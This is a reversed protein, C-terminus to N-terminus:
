VLDPRTTRWIGFASCMSQRAPLFTNCALCETRWSHLSVRAQLKKLNKVEAHRAAQPSFTLFLDLVTVGLQLPGVRWPAKPKLKPIGAKYNEFETALARLGQEHQFQRAAKRVCADRVSELLESIEQNKAEAVETLAKRHSEALKRVEAKKASKAESISALANHLENACRKKVVELSTTCEKDKKEHEDLLAVHQKRLEQAKDEAVWVEGERTTIAEQAVQLAYTAKQLRNHTSNWKKYEGQKQGKKSPKKTQKRGSVKSQKGGKTSDKGGTSDNKDDDEQEAGQSEKAPEDWTEYEDYWQWHTQKWAMAGALSPCRPCSHCSLSKTLHPATIHGCAHEASAM